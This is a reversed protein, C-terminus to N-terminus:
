HKFKRKIASVANSGLILTASPVAAAYIGLGTATGFAKYAHKKLGKSESAVSLFHDTKACLKGPMRLVANSAKNFCRKLCKMLTVKQNHLYLLVSESVGCARLGQYRYFLMGTKCQSLNEAGKSKGCILKEYQRMM